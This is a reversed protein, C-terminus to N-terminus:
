ASIPLACANGSTFSLTSTSVFFMRPRCPPSSSTGLAAAGICSAMSGIIGSTSRASFFALTMRPCCAVSVCTPWASRAMLRWDDLRSSVASVTDDSFSCCFAGAASSEAMPWSTISVCRMPLLAFSNRVISPTLGSATNRSPM